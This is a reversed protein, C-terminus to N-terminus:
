EVITAGAFVTALAGVILRSPEKEQATFTLNM